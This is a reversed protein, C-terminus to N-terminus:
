RLEIRWFIRSEKDIKILSYLLWWYGIKRHNIPLQQSEQDRCPIIETSSTIMLSIPALYEHHILCKSWGFFHFLKKMLWQSARTKKRGGKRTHKKNASFCIFQIGKRESEDSHVIMSKLHSFFVWISNEHCAHRSYDRLNSIKPVKTCCLVFTPDNSSTEHRINFIRSQSEKREYDPSM